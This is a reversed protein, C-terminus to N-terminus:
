EANAFKESRVSQIIHIRINNEYINYNFVSFGRLKIVKLEINM